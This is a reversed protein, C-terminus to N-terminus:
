RPPAPEIIAEGSACLTGDAAVRLELRWPATPEPQEAVLEHRTGPRVPATFRIDVLAGGRLWQEGLQEVMLREMLSLAITGHAITGGFPSRGALEPDVHLPNFDGGLRAWRDITEQTLEFSLSARRVEAV